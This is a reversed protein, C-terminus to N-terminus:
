LIRRFGEVYKEVTTGTIGPATNIELVYAANQRANFIVDVAGFDLGSRAFASVAQDTCDQPIDFGTRVFIFGNAHSRIQWNEPEDIEPDKIKRQVDVLDEGIFHFRYESDKKVYSTYCPVVPIDLADSAHITLGRGSHGTLTARACINTGWSRAVSLDTTFRPIRTHESVLRFFELKNSARNVAEPKNIIRDDAHYVGPGWNIITNGRGYRFNGNHRIRRVGLGRALSAAGASFPNSSYIFTAM